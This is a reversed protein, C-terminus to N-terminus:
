SEGYKRFLSARQDYQEYRYRTLATLQGANSLAKRLWWVWHKKGLPLALITALCAFLALLIRYGFWGCHRARGMRPLRVVAFQQGGRLSRGLLYRITLRDAGVHEWAEAEDCWCYTAGKEGLRTFFEFDEGGALGFAPDFPGAAHRLLAARILVNGTGGAPLSTGTPCRRRRYFDGERVWAPADSPLRYIVPGFVADAKYQEAAALLAGLWPPSVEEDDDVFALYAGSALAVCRNRALSINQRPEVGYIIPFRSRRSHRMVTERATCERDNDVVVVAAEVRVPVVLRELSELLRSLSAPRRFTVVCISLREPETSM